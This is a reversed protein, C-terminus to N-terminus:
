IKTLVTNDFHVDNLGHKILARINAHDTNGPNDLVDKRYYEGFCHLAQEKTLNNLKAFALIKCSGENSAAENVVTDQDRGNLFRSPTYQYANNITEIVDNFQVRTPQKKLLDLLEAVTM